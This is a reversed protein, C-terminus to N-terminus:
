FQLRLTRDHWDRATKESVHAYRLTTRIDRHRLLKQVVRIDCGKSVMITAPTHRAFVHLGGPKNVGAKAKYDSFVKGLRRHDFRHGWDTYFLPHRGNVQFDPRVKLYAKLVTAAEESLYTVGDRGGKGERVWMTLNKLDVDRLDLNCLESARLCCYFLTQFMALHKLNQISAFIKIVDEEDFYYPITVNQSIFPLKIEEGLMKHFHMLAFADNNLTSRSPHRDLVSERYALAHKETPRNTKAFRLYRDVRQVYDNITSERFGLNELYRRFRPSIEQQNLKRDKITWDLELKL